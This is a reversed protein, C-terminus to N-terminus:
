QLPIITNAPAPQASDSAQPAREVTEAGAVAEDEKEVFKLPAQAIVKKTSPRYLFAKKSKKYLIIRDGNKADQFFEQNKVANEDSVAAMVPVEDKPLDVQKDAESMMEKYNTEYTKAERKFAEDPSIYYQYYRFGAYGGGAVIAVILVAILTSAVPHNHHYRKIREM